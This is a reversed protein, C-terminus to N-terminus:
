LSEFRHVGQLPFRICVVCEGQTPGCVGSTCKRRATGTHPLRERQSLLTLRIKSSRLFLSGLVIGLVSASRDAHRDGLKEGRVAM